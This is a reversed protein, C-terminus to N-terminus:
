LICCVNDHFCVGRGASVVGCSSLLLVLFGFTHEGVQCGKRFPAFNSLQASVVSDGFYLRMLDWPEVM